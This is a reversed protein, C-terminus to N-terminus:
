NSPREMLFWTFDDQSFTGRHYRFGYDILRFDQHRDLFEGAFDRKFLRESHGRYDIAVPSPNYYEAMMVFRRSSAAMKEYVKPLADPAIHILVGKTFVFDYNAASPTWELISEEIVECDLKALETAAAANIEVATIAASPAVLGIAQVNMGINAGLELVSELPGTRGFIESFLSINGALMEAGTNRASYEDGFDGSWFQEQPTTM